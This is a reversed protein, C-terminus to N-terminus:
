CGPCPQLTQTTYSPTWHNILATNDKKLSLIRDIFGAQYEKLTIWEKKEWIVKNYTYASNPKIPVIAQSGIMEQVMEVIQKYWKPQRGRPITRITHPLYFWPIMSESEYDLCQEVFKFKIKNLKSKILHLKTMLQLISNISTREEDLPQSWATNANQCIAINAKHINSLM